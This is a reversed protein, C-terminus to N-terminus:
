KVSFVLDIMLFSNAFVSEIKGDEIADEGNVLILFINIGM